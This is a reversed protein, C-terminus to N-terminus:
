TTSASGRIITVAMDTVPRIHRGLPIGDATDAADDVLVACRGCGASLGGTCSDGFDGTFQVTFGSPMSGTSNDAYTVGTSGALTLDITGDAGAPPSATNIAAGTIKIAQGNGYYGGTAYVAFLSALEAATLDNTYTFTTGSCNIAVASLATGGHHKYPLRLVRSGAAITGTSALAPGRSSTQAGGFTALEADVFARFGTRAYQVRAAMSAHGDKFENWHYDDLSVVMPNAAAMGEIISQLRTYGPANAPTPSSGGSPGFGFVGTAGCNYGLV